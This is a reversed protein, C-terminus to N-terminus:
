EDKAPTNDTLKKIWKRSVFHRLTMITKPVDEAAFMIFVLLVFPVDTFFGLIVVAPIGVAYLSAADIAFGTLTDGGARFIGCIATYSIMKIPLWLGYNFLLQSAIQETGQTETPLISLIPTRLLIMLAGVFVGVLPTMILFRKAYQYARELAGEGVKKGVMIASANCIGVFFVFFVQQFTDYVTYAAHNETGQRAIVMIYVNTGVAWLAENLLVPTAVRAFRMIFERSFGFLESLAGKLANRSFCIYLVIILAQVFMGAVTAIAAGRMELRPFGLHGSILCYNLFTNVCVSAGSSLLPVIVSETARLAACCIQSIMVFVAAISYYRLYQAGAAIVATDTNNFIHMLTVPFAALLVAFVAAIAVGFSLALGFTRKIAGYERAGWYQSILTAAGSCVGFAVVNLLFAFRSAIGMASTQANGLNMIMATDILAACSVLLNQFAIPLALRLVTSYFGKEIKKSM